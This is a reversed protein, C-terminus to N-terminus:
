SKIKFSEGGGGGVGGRMGGNVCTSLVKDGLRSVGKM